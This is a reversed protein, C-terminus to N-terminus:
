LRFQIRDPLTYPLYAFLIVRDVFSVVLAQHPQNLRCGVASIGQAGFCFKHCAPAFYLASFVILALLPQGLQGSDVSAGLAVLPSSGWLKQLPATWYSRYAFVHLTNYFTTALPNPFSTHRPLHFTIYHHLEVTCCTTVVNRSKNLGLYVIGPILRTPFETLLDPVTSISPWSSAEGFGVPQRTFEYFQSHQVQSPLKGM